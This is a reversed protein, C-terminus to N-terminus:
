LISRVATPSHASDVETGAIMQRPESIIPASSVTASHHSRADKQTALYHLWNTYIASSTRHWSNHIAAERLAANLEELLEERPFLRAQHQIEQLAATTADNFYAVPLSPYGPAEGRLYRAVDRRYELLLTNAEYEPHGQFFIFLSRNQRVFADIGAGASTTLVRYGNATLEKEELGNWRSHPMLFRSPTGALIPHDSLAECDFLGYHKHHARVRSIGDMHLVAAHAALCSWISSITHERAWELLRVFSDWYPEDQLRATLPERGTVILGDLPADWLTDLESYYSAIHRTISQGRSIGPLQYIQLRVAVNESAAELLSEFQRETAELAGDQMNNVLGITLLAGSRDSNAAPRAERYPNRWHERNASSHKTVLELSM